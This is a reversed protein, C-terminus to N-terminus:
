EHVRLRALPHPRMGNREPELGMEVHEHIADRLLLFTREHPIVIRTARMRPLPLRSVAVVHKRVGRDYRAILPAFDYGGLRDLRQGAMEVIRLAGGSAGM